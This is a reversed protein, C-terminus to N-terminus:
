HFFVVPPFESNLIDQVSEPLYIQPDDYGIVFQTNNLPMYEVGDKVISFIITNHPGM